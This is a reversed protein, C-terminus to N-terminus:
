KALMSIQAATSKFVDFMKAHCWLVEKWSILSTRTNQTWINSPNNQVKLQMPLPQFIASNNLGSPQFLKPEFSFPLHKWLSQKKLELILLDIFKLRKPNSSNNPRYFIFVVHLWKTRQPVRIITQLLVKQTLWFCWLGRKSSSATNMHVLRFCRQFCVGVWVPSETLGSRGTFQRRATVAPRECQRRRFERWGWVCM